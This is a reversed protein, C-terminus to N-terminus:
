TANLYRKSFLFFVCFRSLFLFTKCRHTNDKGEKTVSPLPPPLPPLPFQPFLTVNFSGMHALSNITGGLAVYPAMKVSYYLSGAPSSSVFM